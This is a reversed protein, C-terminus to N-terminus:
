CLPSLTLEVWTHTEKVWALYIMFTKEFGWLCMTKRLHLFTFEVCPHRREVWAPLIMFMKGCERLYGGKKYLLGLYSMWVGM